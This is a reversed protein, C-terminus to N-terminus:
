VNRAVVRAVQGALDERCDDYLQITRTDAHRSFKSVARINGNMLGLAETISSHRIGHPRGLGLSKTLRYLSTGTLRLGKKARDFNIFLAGPALGRVELWNTLATKTEEPLTLSIRATKGKGLVAITGSALDVHELDLSVVEGRRLGLDHLLRLIALDRKSKPDQRQSLRSIVQRLALQGPGRLDRYSDNKINEIELSWSVIGLTRALKVLARLAALRRNVTAPSLRAEIMKSRYGLVLANADGASVSLLRRSADIVAGANLFLAFAELDQKYAKITLANRGSLFANILSTIKDQATTAERAIINSANIENM